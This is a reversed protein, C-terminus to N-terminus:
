IPGNFVIEYDNNYDGDIYKLGMDYPKYAVRVGSVPEIKMTGGSYYITAKVVDNDDMIIIQQAAIKM